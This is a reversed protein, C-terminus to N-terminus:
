TAFVVVFIVNRVDDGAAVVFVIFVFGVLMGAVIPKLGVTWGLM